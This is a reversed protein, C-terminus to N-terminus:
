AKPTTATTATLVTNKFTNPCSFQVYRIISRASSGSIAEAINISEGMGSM